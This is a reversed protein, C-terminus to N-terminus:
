GYISSATATSFTPVSQSVFDTPFQVMPFEQSFIISTTSLDTELNAPLNFDLLQTVSLTHLPIIACYKTPVCLLTSLIEGHSTESESDSASANYSSPM